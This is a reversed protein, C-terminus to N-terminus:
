TTFILIALIQLLTGLCISKRRRMECAGDGDFLVVDGVYSGRWM